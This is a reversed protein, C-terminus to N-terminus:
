NIRWPLVYKGYQDQGLATILVGESSPYDNPQGLKLLQSQENAFVIEKLEARSPNKLNTTQRKLNLNELSTGRQTLKPRGSNGGISAEKTMELQTFSELVKSRGRIPELFVKKTKVMIKPPEVVMTAKESLKESLDQSRPESHTHQRSNRSVTLRNSPEDQNQSPTKARQEM